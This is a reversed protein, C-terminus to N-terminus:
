AYEEAIHIIENRKNLRKLVFNLTDITSANNNSKSLNVAKLTDNDRKTDFELWNVKFSPDSVKKDTTKLGTKIRRSKETEIETEKVKQRIKFLLVRVQWHLLGSISSLFSVWSKM